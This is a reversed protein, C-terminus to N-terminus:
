AKYDPDWIERRKKYERWWDYRGKKTIIQGSEVQM